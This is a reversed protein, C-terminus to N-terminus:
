QRTRFYALQFARYQKVSPAFPKEKELIGVVEGTTMIKPGNWSDEEPDANENFGEITGEFFHMEDGQYKEFRARQKESTIWDKQWVIKIVGIEHLGKIIAGTEELTERKMADAINEGKAVGGGPFIIHGADAITALVGGESTFLYGECNLRFPLQSRNM